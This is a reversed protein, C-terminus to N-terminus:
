RVKVNSWNSKEPQYGVFSIEFIYPGGVRMNNIVFRGDNNTSVSYVTGTPTHTAKVSAGPLAGKADKITGTMSSSTVQANAGITVSVFAVIVLVLRLLLSKKM